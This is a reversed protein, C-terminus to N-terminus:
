VRYGKEKLIPLKTILGELLKKRSVGDRPVLIITDDGAVTGLVEPIELHDIAFAVSNAHGSITKILALNGSFDLSLFGRIFDNVLSEESGSKSVDDPFVYIYGGRGDPVKGVKLFKLDRSLTAQTVSYGENQLLELLEEQSGVKQSQIIRRIISYREAKKRV